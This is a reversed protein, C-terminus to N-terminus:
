TLVHVKASRNTYNERIGWKRVFSPLHDSFGVSRETFWLDVPTKTQLIEPISKLFYHPIIISQPIKDNEM